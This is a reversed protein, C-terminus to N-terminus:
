VPTLVPEDTKGDRLNTVLREGYRKQIESAKAALRDFDNDCESEIERRIMRTEEVIPDNWM